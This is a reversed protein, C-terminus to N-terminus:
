DWTAQPYFGCGLYSVAGTGTCDIKVTFVGPISHHQCRHKRCVQLQRRLCRATRAHIWHHGIWRRETAGGLGGDHLGELHGERAPQNAEIAERYCDHLYRTVQM